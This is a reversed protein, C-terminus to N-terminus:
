LIIHMIFYYAVFAFLLLLAHGLNEIFGAKKAKAQARRATPYYQESVQYVRHENM